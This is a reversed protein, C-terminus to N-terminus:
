DSNIVIYLMYVVFNATAVNVSLAGAVAFFLCILALSLVSAQGKM